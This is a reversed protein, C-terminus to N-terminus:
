PIGVSSGAGSRVYLPGLLPEAWEALFPCFQLLRLEVFAGQCPHRSSIRAVIAQLSGSM